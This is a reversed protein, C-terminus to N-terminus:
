LLVFLLLLSLIEILSFSFYLSIIWYEEHALIFTYSITEYVSFTVGRSDDIEKAYKDLSNIM